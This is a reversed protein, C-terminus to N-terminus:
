IRPLTVPTLLPQRAVYAAINDIVLQAMRLRTQRTASAVHPQLVVSDLALLTEPVDPESDYVDLGAGALRGHSLADVLAAQDVVTGRAINIFYGEPGLAAIVERSVIGRTAEGGPCAAVLVDVNAALAVPDAYYTYPVEPKPRPGHWALTTNFPVFRKAIAKGIAGLGILGVRKGQLSDSVGRPGKNWGCQRVFRDAAVMQRLTALTLGLAMDAVDETLVGPTNSVQVGRESAYAVDIRDLGVGFCAILKLNPLRDMLERSVGRGSNTAVITVAEGVERLMAEPDAAEWLRHCTYLKELAPAVNPHFGGLILIHPQM